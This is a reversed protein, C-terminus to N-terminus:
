FRQHLGIRNGESDEIEAVAFGLEEHFTAPYLIKAGLKEAKRLTEMVDGIHLYLLIGHHTPQYIEGKALAGTIGLSKEEFPFYAMHIGDFEELDFSFSFLEHYFRVAREMDLVPIEFYVGPNRTEKAM